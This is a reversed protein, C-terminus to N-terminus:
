NKHDDRNNRFLLENHAAKAKYVKKAPCETVLATTEVYLMVGAEMIDPRLTPPTHINSMSRAEENMRKKEPMMGVFFWLKEYTTQCSSCRATGLDHVFSIRSQFIMALRIFKDLNSLQDM